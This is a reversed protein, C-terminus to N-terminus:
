HCLSNELAFHRTKLAAGSATQGPEGDSLRPGLFEWVRFACAPAYPILPEPDEAILRSKYSLLLALVTKRM